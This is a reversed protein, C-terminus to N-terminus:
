GGQTDGHRHKGQRPFWPVFASTQEVYEEYGPKTEKMSKELMAVGSVRLLLYTMIIPSFVSWWGGAAAAILYYGWWQTADGFYNPHRTYRWLGSMLLKGKNAPDSKFRRLQWDGVAEFFFGVAWVAVGIVDVATMRAPMPGVQAALLRASIVGMLAGQLMFVQLYSVWWWRAGHEERWARYRFDEGQGWNRLLIHIGLRLGWITVLGTLVIKRATFGGTLAFNMWALMVFGPGWFIDVISSDRLMLSVLWLASMFVWVALAGLGAIQLLTM